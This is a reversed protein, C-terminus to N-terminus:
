NKEEVFGKTAKTKNMKAETRFVYSLSCYFDPNLRFSYFTYQQQYLKPTFKQESLSEYKESSGSRFLKKNVPNSNTQWHM